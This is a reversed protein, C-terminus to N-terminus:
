TVTLIDVPTDEPMKQDSLMGSSTIAEASTRTTGQVRALDTMGLRSGPRAPVGQRAQRPRKAVPIVVARASSRERLLSPECNARCKQMGRVLLSEIMAPPLTSQTAATVEIVAIVQGPVAEAAVTV